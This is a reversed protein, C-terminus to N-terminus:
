NKWNWAQRGGRYTRSQIAQTGVKESIHKQAIEFLKLVGNGQKSEMCLLRAIGKFLDTDKSDDGSSYGLAIFKQKNFHESRSTNCSEKLNHHEM